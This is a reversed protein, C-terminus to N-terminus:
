KLMGTLLTDFDKKEGATNRLVPKTKLYFLPLEDPCRGELKVYDKETTVIYDPKQKLYLWCLRNIDRERYDFHDPYIIGNIKAPHLGSLLSFFNLPSGIGAFAIVNKGCVAGPDAEGSGGKLCEIEYDMIFVPKNFRSLYGYLKEAEGQNIMYPRTLVFVDAQRIFSKPERLLGSPILLNNDFPNSADLVLINLDRHVWRCHFGDDLIVTGSFGKLKELGERSKHALVLGPFNNRMMLAEDRFGSSAVAATKGASQLAKVIEMVLPTKGTGGSVINGASIVPFGYKKPRSCTKKVLVALLYVLSFPLLCLSLMRFFVSKRRFVFRNYFFSFFPRSSRLQIIEM